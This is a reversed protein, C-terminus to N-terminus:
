EFQNPRFGSYKKFSRDGGQLLPAILEDGSIKGKIKFEYVFCAVNKITQINRFRVIFFPTSIKQRCIHDAVTFAYIDGKWFTSVAAAFPIYFSGFIYISFPGIPYFADIKAFNGFQCKINAIVSFEFPTFLLGM